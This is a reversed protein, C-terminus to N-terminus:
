EEDGVKPVGNRKFTHARWLLARLNAQAVSWRRPSDAPADFYLLAEEVAKRLVMEEDLTM